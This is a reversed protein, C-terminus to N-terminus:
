QEKINTKNAAERFEHLLKANVLVDNLHSVQHLLDVAASEVHQYIASLCDGHM